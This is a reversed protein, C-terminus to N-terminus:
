LNASYRDLIIPSCAISTIMRSLVNKNIQMPTCIMHFPTLPSMAEAGNWRCQIRFHPLFAQLWSPPTMQAVVTPFAAPCQVLRVTKLAPNGREQLVRDEFKLFLEAM